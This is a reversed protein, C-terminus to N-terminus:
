SSVGPLTRRDFASLEGRIDLLFLSEDDAQPPVAIPNPVQISHLLTGSRSHILHIKSDLGPVALVESVECVPASITHGTQQYGSTIMATDDQLHCSWIPEGTDRNLLVVGYGPDSVVVGQQTLLPPHPNWPLTNARQWRIEGSDGNIRALGDVMPAFLDNSLQDPVPTALPASSGLLQVNKGDGWRISGTYPDLAMLQPTAPWQGFYLTDGSVVPAASTSFTQYPAIVREWLLEGSNLCLSRLTTSDAVFLRDEHIAPSALLFTRLPEPSSRSWAVEGTNLDLVVVTGEICTVAVRDGASSPASRVPAPLPTSWRVSGDSIDVATLQANRSDEDAWSTVLHGGTLCFGADHATGPLQTVWKRTPQFTGDSHASNTLIHAKPAPFDRHTTLHLEEGDWRVTRYSPPTGDLGGFLPTPTTVHLIGDVDIVRSVHRHGSFTALPKSPLHDLMTHWPQDHSLLIWPRGPPQHELDARMWANQQATDLGFEHTHWDVAIVHLGPLDFSYWRPGLFQEYSRPDAAHLLYGGPSVASDRSGAMHDHNGPLLRVNVPSSSVAALLDEFEAPIGTDTLDGTAVFSELGPESEWVRQFFETLSERSGLEVRFPYYSGKGLHMDSIHVFRYPFIAPKKKLVFATTPLNAPVYWTQCSYDAPVTVFVFPGQPAISFSGDQGTATVTIGDSVLVHPVPLGQDDKVHGRM